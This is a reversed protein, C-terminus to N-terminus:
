GIIFAHKRMLSIYNKSPVHILMIYPRVLVVTYQKNNDMLEFSVQPSQSVEEAALEMGNQIPKGQYFVQLDVKPEFEPFVLKLENLLPAIM